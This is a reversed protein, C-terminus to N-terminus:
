RTTSGPNGLRQSRWFKSLIQSFIPGPPCKSRGISGDLAVVKYTYCCSCVSVSVSVLLTISFHRKGRSMLTLAVIIVLYAIVM